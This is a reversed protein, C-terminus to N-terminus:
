TQFSLDLGRFACLLFFLMHGDSTDAEYTIYVDHKRYKWRGQCVIIFFYPPLTHTIKTNGCLVKECVRHLFV